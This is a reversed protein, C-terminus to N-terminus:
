SSPASLRAELPQHKKKTKKKKREKREELQFPPPARGRSATAATSWHRVNPAEGRPSTLAGDEMVDDRGRAKIQIFTPSTEDVEM